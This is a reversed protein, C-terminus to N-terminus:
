LTYKTHIVWYSLDNLARIAKGGWSIFFVRPSTMDFFLKFCNLIASVSFYAWTVKKKLPPISFGNLPSSLINIGEGFIAVYSRFGSILANSTVSVTMLLIFDSNYSTIINFKAFGSM